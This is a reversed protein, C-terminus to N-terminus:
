RARREEALRRVDEPIEGDYPLDPGGPATWALESDDEYPHDALAALERARELEEGLARLASDVLKSTGPGFLRRCRALQDGDVTTSIRVRTM